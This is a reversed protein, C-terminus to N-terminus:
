FDDSSITTSSLNSFKTNKKIWDITSSSLSKININLFEETFNPHHYVVFGRYFNHEKQFLNLNIIGRPEKNSLFSFLLVKKESYNYGDKEVITKKKLDEDKKGIKKLDKM